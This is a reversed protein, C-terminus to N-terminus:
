KNDICYNMKNRLYPTYKLSEEHTLHVGDTTFYLVSDQVPIYHYRSLPFIKSYYSRLINSKRMNTLQSNVPMEFFCVQLGKKEFYNVYDKLLLFQEALLASDPARACDDIQLQLMKYAYNNKNTISSHDADDVKNATTTDNLAPQANPLIKTELVTLYGNLIAIPHKDSRLSLFRRRLYFPLPSLLADTFDSSEKRLIVNTEIFVCKPLNTKQKLIKLGDFISQGAFSLNYVGPMSDSVLRASLSSGVVVAKFSDGENYIYNEAKVINDQWLNQVSSLGPKKKIFASFLAFLLIFTIFTKKILTIL